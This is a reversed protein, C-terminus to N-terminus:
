NEGDEDNLSTLNDIVNMDKNKKKEDQKVSKIAFLLSYDM